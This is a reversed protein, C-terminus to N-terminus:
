GEGHHDEWQDGARVQPLLFRVGQNDSPNLWLMREFVQGAEDANGLRWLCLGYGHLCRLFPRNDVHGWPLVGDFDAGLSLEGIRVGVKYHRIADEPRGDFVFNGLHAHADLCRLDAALMEMLLKRAGARDGAAHLDAAELIPDSDWDDPDSGPLVQEMEFSPRTGRAVIPKAWEELPEGEEGWYEDDPEWSGEDELRLPVLGLAAVDLRQGQVDGSIYPHGAYRWQKRASVTVIEGPVMDWVDATRLTIERATGLLRCRAAKEKATIVALEIPKDLDLDEASAKHRRARPAATRSMTKSASPSIGLWRRYASVLTEGMSGAPFVVECAAVEHRTGDDRSCAATLGRRPTGSYSIGDVAVPEGIVFADAPLPVWDDFAQRLARLQADEGQAGALFEELQADIDPKSHAQRRAVQESGQAM